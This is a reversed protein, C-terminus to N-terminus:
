DGLAETGGLARLSAGNFRPLECLEQLAAEPRSIADLNVNSERDVPQLHAPGSWGRVAETGVPAAGGARQESCRSAAALERDAVRALRISEGGAGGGECREGGGSVAAAFGGETSGCSVGGHVDQQGHQGSHAAVEDQRQQAGDQERGLGLRQLVLRALHAAPCPM